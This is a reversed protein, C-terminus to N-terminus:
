NKLKFCELYHDAEEGTRLYKRRNVEKPVYRLNELMHEGGRALPVIHDVEHGEPCNRYFESLKAKYESHFAWKAKRLLERRKKDGRERAARGSESKAYIKKRESIKRRWQEYDEEALKGLEQEARAIFEGLENERHM